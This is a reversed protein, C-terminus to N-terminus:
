RAAPFGAVSVGALLETTQCVRCHERLHPRRIVSGSREVSKPPLIRRRRSCRPTESRSM